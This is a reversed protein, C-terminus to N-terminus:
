PAAPLTPTTYPAVRHPAKARASEAGFRKRMSSLLGKGHENRDVEYALGPWRELLQAKIKSAAAADGYALLIELQFLHFEALAVHGDLALLHTADQAAIPKPGYAAYHVFRPYAVARAAAESLGEAPAPTFWAVLFDDWTLFPSDDVQHFWTERTTRDTDNPETLDFRVTGSPPFSREDEEVTVRLQFPGPPLDSVSLMMDVLFRRQEGPRLRFSDGEEQVESPDLTKLRSMFGNPGRFELTSVALPPQGLVVSITKPKSQQRLNVM